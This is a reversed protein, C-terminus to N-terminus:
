VEEKILRIFLDINQIDQVPIRRDKQSSLKVILQGDRATLGKIYSWPLESQDIMLGQRSLQIRGFAISQGQHFRSKLEPFLLPYVQEKVIEILDEIQQIRHDLHVRGHQTTDLTLSHKPRSKWLLFSQRTTSTNLGHIEKWPIVLEQRGPRAVKLGQPYVKVWRHARILRRLTYLLLGILLLAALYFWTKGWAAAAAPGFNTYGYYTRWLGYGLPATVVLILPFFTTLLDRWRLPQVIFETVPSGTPSSRHNVM